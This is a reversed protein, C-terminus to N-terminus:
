PQVYQRVGGAQAMGPIYNEGIYRRFFNKAKHAATGVHSVVNQSLCMMFVFDATNRDSTTLSEVTNKFADYQLSTVQKFLNTLNTDARNLSAGYKEAFQDGLTQLERAVERIAQRQTVQEPDQQEPPIYVEDCEEVAGGSELRDRGCSRFQASALGETKFGDKFAFYEDFLLDFQREAEASTIPRRPISVTTAM